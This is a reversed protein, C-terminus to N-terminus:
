FIYSVYVKFDFSFFSRVLLFGPGGLGELIQNAGSLPHLERLDWKAGFIMLSTVLIPGFHAWFPVLSVLFLM